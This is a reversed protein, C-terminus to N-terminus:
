RAELRMVKGSLVYIKKQFGDGGKSGAPRVEINYVGPDLWMSKLRSATGAFAGEIYVEADRNAASLKVEGKDPGWAFGPYWFGPGGMLFPAGYLWPSGWYYPSWGWPGFGGGSWRTYGANVMVGGLRVRPMRRRKEGSDGDDDGATASVMTAAALLLVSLVRM